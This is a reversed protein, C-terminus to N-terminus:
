YNKQVLEKLSGTSLWPRRRHLMRHCNSCVLAFDEIRILTEKAIESIPLIHHAEIFGIGLDGYMDTFSFNCVQCSLKKDVALHREKALRVVERNREKFKHLRYKEKGEPFTLEDIDEVVENSIGQEYINLYKKYIKGVLGMKFNKKTEFYEIHKELGGLTLYLQEMGFDALIKSLFYDFSEASLTRTFYQGEILYRYVLLYIFASGENMGQEHLVKIAEPRTLRKEYFAKSVEYASAILTSDITQM